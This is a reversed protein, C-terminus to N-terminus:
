KGEEIGSIRAEWRGTHARYSVGRFRTKGRSFGNSERRLHALLKEKTMKRIKPAEADYESLAFNLAGADKNM